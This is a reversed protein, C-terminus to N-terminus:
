FEPGEFRDRGQFARHRHLGVRADDSRSLGRVYSLANEVAETERVAPSWERQSDMFGAIRECARVGEEGGGFQYYCITLLRPIKEAPISAVVERALFAADRAALEGGYMPVPEDADSDARSDLRGELLAVRDRLRDSEAKKRLYLDRWQESRRRGNKAPTATKRRQDCTLPPTAAM